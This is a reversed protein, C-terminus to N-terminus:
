SSESPCRQWRIRCYRTTGTPAIVARVPHRYRWCRVPRSHRRPVDWSGHELRRPAEHCRDRAAQFSASTSGRGRTSPVQRGSTGGIDTGRCAGPSYDIRGSCAGRYHCGCRARHDASVRAGRVSGAEDAGAAVRGSGHGRRCQGSRVSRVRRSRAQREDWESGQQHGCGAHSRLTARGVTVRM